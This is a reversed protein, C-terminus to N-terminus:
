KKASVDFTDEILVDFVKRPNNTKPPEGNKFTVVSQTEVGSQISEIMKKEREIRRVDREDAFYPACPANKLTSRINTKYEYSISGDPQVVSGKKTDFITPIGTHSLDSVYIPTKVTPPVTREGVDFSPLHQHSSFIDLYPHRDEFPALESQSVRKRNLLHKNQFNANRIDNSTRAM